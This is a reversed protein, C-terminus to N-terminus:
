TLRTARLGEAIYAVYINDGSRVEFVITESTSDRLEDVYPRAINVLDSQLHQNFALGLRAASLGLRFMKTDPNQELFKFRTLTHLIRSVTARHFGLKRSIEMTGLERNQAVFVLLITLTKEISTSKDPSARM